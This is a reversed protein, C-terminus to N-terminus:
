KRGMPKTMRGIENRIKRVAAVVKRDAYIMKPILVRTVTWHRDLQEGWRSTSRHRTGSTWDGRSPLRETLKLLRQLM